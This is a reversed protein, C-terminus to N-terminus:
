IKKKKVLIEEIKDVCKAVDKKIDSEWLFLYTWSGNDVKTIYATKSKDRKIGKIQHQHIPVPYKKPNCHWFDGYAEIIIKQQPFCFDCMFKNMFKYQHIFDIGEKYGRKLLEEKIQREPKTNQQLPFKGSEYLKLITKRSYEKIKELSEPNDYRERNAEILKKRTLPNNWAKITSERLIARTKETHHKGKIWSIKGKHSESLRKLTEPTPHTGKKPSPKGKHVESMRKRYEPNAWKKKSSESMRRKTEESSIGRKGKNWSPKGTKKGKMPSPKGRKSESIKKRVEPNAMAKKTLESQRMRLELNAWTKERSEKMERKTEKSYIGTKGKNWPVLGKKFKTDVM